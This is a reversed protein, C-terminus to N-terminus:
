LFQELSSVEIEGNYSKTKNDIIAFDSGVFENIDGAIYQKICEGMDTATTVPVNQCIHNLNRIGGQLIFDKPLKMVGMCERITMFRDEDPHTMNTPMHGVFAGIYDKPIETTKRMVNGGADLKAAICLCKEAYKDIKNKRMWKSVTQYSVGMAELYDQPNTSKVIKDQFQKHTIGNEMEELVFKYFPEQSPTRTNVLVNMSDKKNKSASRITEEIKENPRQFYPFLPIKNDKFFFYFTRDRVQSMGHLISKTKYIMFTYGNQKGIKRLKAVVPEGLKSALRPANEGWFVRPQINELVYKASISMWDNAAADSRAGQSLSSLGACPCTASVVDIKGKQLNFKFGEDILGYNVEEGYYKVIHQDNNVFPAYSLLYEPKSGFAAESGLTIGGILPVITAHKIPM